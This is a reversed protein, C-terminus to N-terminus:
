EIVICGIYKVSYKRCTDIMERLQKHTTQGVEAIIIACGSEMFKKIVEAKNIDGSIASIKKIYESEAEKSDDSTSLNIVFPTKHDALIKTDIELKDIGPQFGSLRSYTGIVMELDRSSRIKDGLLYGLIIIACPIILGVVLGLIVYKILEKKTNTEPIIVESSNDEIYKAKSNRLNVLKTEFDARSNIYNKLNNINNNQSNVIGAESKVICAIGDDKLTFEGETERIAKKKAYLRDKILTMSRKALDESPQMINVSFTDGAISTSLVEGWYEVKLDKDADEAENRIEGQTVYLNLKNLINGTNIEESGPIVTFLINAVHVEDPNLNMYISNDVYDQLKMIQENLEGMSTEVDAISKDYDAINANYTDLKEQEEASLNQPKQIKKYGLFACGLVCVVMCIIVIIKHKWLDTLINRMYITKMKIKGKFFVLVSSVNIFGYIGFFVIATIALTIFISVNTKRAALLSVISAIITAIIIRIIPIGKVAEKIEGKLVVAQYCLVAFEAALTGIAAGAAAYRPILMANLILDVAAGLITSYLVQKERGTPVMIEIGLINTIGIFLVTPMIIQMPLVAGAFADGAIFRISEEAFLMFYVTIPVAALIVFQMAKKTINKFEETNGQEIYYAARPLLVAGLSTIISVLVTKIKVAAGYLGVDTDTKMFGLMVNDLNTYITTTCALAFFILVVKLHRKLDYDGMWRFDIYERAKFFNWIFSASSALVSIAGYIVYDSQKHVLMFMAIVSILKFVVSRVTIYTYEELAKYLWEMGIASLFITSSVILYLIREERLRPICAIAIILAIYSIATMILNIFLLEHTTRTLKERDDRVQACAKIGYTPIGLQAFMNFYAIVSVALNVKGNGEPLLIRSIYPFTILPFVFSSLTLLANMAFNKRITKQGKDM